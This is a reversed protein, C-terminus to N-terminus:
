FEGLLGEGRLGERMDDYFACLKPLLEGFCAAVVLAALLESVLFLM